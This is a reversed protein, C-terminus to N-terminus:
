RKRGPRLKWVAAATVYGACIVAFNPEPIGIVFPQLKGSGTISPTPTVGGGLPGVQFMTSEGLLTGAVGDALAEEFSSYNGTWARIQVLIYSNVPANQIVRTSGIFLGASSGSLTNTVAGPELVLSSDDTAGLNLTYYLGVRVNAAATGTHANTIKTASSNNFTLFGQARGQWGIGLVVAVLVILRAM